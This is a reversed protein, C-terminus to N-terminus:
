GHTNDSVCSNISKSVKEPNNFSLYESEGKLVDKLVDGYKKKLEGGSFIKNKINCYKCCNVLLKKIENNLKDTDPGQNLLISYDQGLLNTLQATTDKKSSIHLM